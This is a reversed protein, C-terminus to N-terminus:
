IISNGSAPDWVKGLSFFVALALGALGEERALYNMM